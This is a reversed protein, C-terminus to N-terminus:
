LASTLPLSGLAICSYRMNLMLATPPCRTRLDRSFAAASRFVHFLMQEQPNEAQCRTLQQVFTAAARDCLKPLLIDRTLPRVGLTSHGLRHWLQEYRCYHLSLLCSMGRYQPSAPSTCLALSSHCIVPKSSLIASSLAWGVLSSWGHSTLRGLCM